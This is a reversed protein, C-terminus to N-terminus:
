LNGQKVLVQEPILEVGYHRGKRELELRCDGALLLEMVSTKGNFCAWWLPSCNDHDPLNPDIRPDKLLRTTIPVDGRFCALQLATDEDYNVQNVQVDAVTLLEEVVRV